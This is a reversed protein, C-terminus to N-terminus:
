WSMSLDDLQQLLLCFCKLFLRNVPWDYWKTQSFWEFLNLHGVSLLTVEASKIHRDKVTKYEDAQSNWCTCSVLQNLLKEMSLFYCTLYWHTQNVAKLADHGLTICLLSLISRSVTVFTIKNTVFMNSIANMVAFTYM